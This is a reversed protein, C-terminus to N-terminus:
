SMLVQNKIAEPLNSIINKGLETEKFESALKLYLMDLKMKLKNYLPNNMVFEDLSKYYDAIKYKKPKYTSKYANSQLEYASIAEIGNYKKCYVDFMNTTFCRDGFFDYDSVYRYNQTINRRINMTAFLRYGFFDYYPIELVNNAMADESKFSIYLKKDIHTATVIEDGTYEVCSKFKIMSPKCKNKDNIEVNCFYNYMEKDEVTFEWQGIMEKLVKIKFQRYFYKAITWNGFYMEYKCNEKFKAYMYEPDLLSTDKCYEAEKKLQKELKDILGTIEIIVDDLWPAKANKAAEYPSFSDKYPCDLLTM